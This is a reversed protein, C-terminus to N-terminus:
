GISIAIRQCKGYIKMDIDAHWNHRMHNKIYSSIVKLFKFFWISIYYLSVQLQKKDDWRMEISNPFRPNCTKEDMVKVGVADTANTIGNWFIKYWLLM